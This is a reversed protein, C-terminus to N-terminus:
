DVPIDIRIRFDLRTLNASCQFSPLWTESRTGHHTARLRDVTAPKLLRRSIPLNVAPLGCSAARRNIGSDSQRRVPGIWQAILFLV